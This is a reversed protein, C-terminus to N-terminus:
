LINEIHNLQIEVADFQINELNRQKEATHALYTGAARRLNQQKKATISEAPAGYAASTRTKVEVFHLGDRGEAIIDIEGSKCRYNREIICYGKGALCLAALDEGLRGLHQRYTKKAERTIMKNEGKEGEAFAEDAPRGIQRNEPM